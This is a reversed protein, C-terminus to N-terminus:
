FYIRGVNRHTQLLCQSKGSHLVSHHMAWFGRWQLIQQGLQQRRQRDIPEATLGKSDAWSCLDEEELTMDREKGSCDVALLHNIGSYLASVMRMWKPCNHSWELESGVGVGSRERSRRIECANNGLASRISSSSQVVHKRSMLDTVDCWDGRCWGRARIKPHAPLTKNSINLRWEGWDIMTSGTEEHLVEGM